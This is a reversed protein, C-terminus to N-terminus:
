RGDPRHRDEEDLDLDIQDRVLKHTSGGPDHPAPADQHVAPPQRHGPAPFAAGTTGVLVAAAAAAIVVRRVGRGRDNM